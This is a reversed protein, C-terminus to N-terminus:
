PDLRKQIDLGVVERFILIPTLGYANSPRGLFQRAFPAIQKLLVSAMSVEQQIDLDHEDDKNIFDEEDM